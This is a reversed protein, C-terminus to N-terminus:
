PTRGGSERLSPKTEYLAATAFRAIQRSSQEQRWIYFVHTQVRIRSPRDKTFTSIRGANDDPDVFAAPSLVWNRRCWALMSLLIGKALSMLINLQGLRPKVSNGSAGGSIEGAEPTLGVRHTSVGSKEGDLLCGYRAARRDVTALYPNVVADVIQVLQDLVAGRGRIPIPFVKSYQRQHSVSPNDMSRFTLMVLQASIDLTRIKSDLTPCPVHINTRALM